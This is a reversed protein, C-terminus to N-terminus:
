WHVIVGTATSGSAVLEKAKVHFRHGSPASPLTENSDDLKKVVLTGPGHVEIVRCPSNAPGYTGDTLDTDSVTSYVHFRESSELAAGDLSSAM